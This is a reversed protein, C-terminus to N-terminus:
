FTIHIAIMTLVGWGIYLMYPDFVLDMINSAANLDSLSDLENFSENRLAGQRVNDLWAAYVKAKGLEQMTNWQILPGVIDQLTQVNYKM